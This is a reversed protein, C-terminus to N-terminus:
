DSNIEREQQYKSFEENKKIEIRNGQKKWFEENYQM